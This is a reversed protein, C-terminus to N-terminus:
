APGCIYSCVCVGKGSCEEGNLACTQGGYNITPPCGGGPNNALIAIPAVALVAGVAFSVLAIKLKKM